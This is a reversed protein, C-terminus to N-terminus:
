EKPKNPVFWTAIYSTAAVVIAGGLTMAADEILAVEPMEVIGTYRAAIALAFTTAASAWAKHATTKM